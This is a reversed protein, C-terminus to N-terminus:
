SMETPNGQELSSKPQVGRQRERRCLNSCHRNCHCGATLRHRNVIPSRRNALSQCCDSPARCKRGQTGSTISDLLKQKANEKFFLRSCFRKHSASPTVLKREIVVAGPPRCVHTFLADRHWASGVENVLWKM